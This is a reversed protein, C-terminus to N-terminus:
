DLEVRPISRRWNAYADIKSRDTNMVQNYLRFGTIAAKAFDCKQILSDAALNQIKPLPIFKDGGQKQSNRVANKLINNAFLQLKLAGKSMNAVPEFGLFDHEGLETKRNKGRFWEDADFAEAKRAPNNEVGSKDIQACMLTRGFYKTLYCVGFDKPEMLLWEKIYNNYENHADQASEISIFHMASTHKPCDPNYALVLLQSKLQEQEAESYGLETMKASMMKELQLAVYGGHCHGVINLRRINQLAQTQSFRRKGDEQAIRPLVAAEFIDRIYAPNFTEERYKEPVEYRLEALYQPWNAEYHAGKRATKDFHYKGFDCVAVCVRVPLSKQEQNDQVFRDVKKLMGNYGRLNIGAGGTGALVLVLNEDTGITGAPRIRYPAEASTECREAFFAFSKGQRKQRCDEIYEDITM